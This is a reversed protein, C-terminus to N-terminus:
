GARPSSPRGPRSRRCSCCRRRQVVGARRVRGHGAVDLLDVSPTTTAWALDYGRPAGIQSSYLPNIGHSVAYPWWRMSWTYFNPDTWYQRLNPVNLHRILPLGYGVIFVALYIAFALLGQLAPGLARWGQSSAGIRRLARSPLMPSDAVDM